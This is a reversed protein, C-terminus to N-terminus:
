QWLNTLSTVAKVIVPLVVHKVNLALVCIWRFLQSVYNLKQTLIPKKKNAKLNKILYVLRSLLVMFPPPLHQHVALSISMLRYSKTLVVGYVISITSFVVAAVALGTLSVFKQIQRPKQYARMAPTRMARTVAGTFLLIDAHRPSAVVKIGFREADFTPTITSFIEIECGNCGGCDVRYVYASRQIDKLLTQKMKAINEDISFPTSIGNVPMPIQTNM